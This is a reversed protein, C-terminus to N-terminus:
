EKITDMSHENYKIINKVANEDRDIIAGCNYCYYTQHDHHIADGSLTQKGGYGDKTKRFGCESCIQTSPYMRDVKILKRDNWDCKYNLMVAFQGFMSRHLNKGMKKSMMMHQVDLDEIHIESYENVLMTTFKQMIDTQINNVKQYDRRLKTIVKTYRKTQYNFPNAERKRALLRQYYTIRQYYMELSEPYTEVVGDNYNMHKIKVDVGAVDDTRPVSINHATDFVLSAYIGNNKMTIICLKIDGEFRPSNSMRIGYWVNNNVPQPKDLVLKGNVIRATDTTFTPKYNKRSKFRPHGHGIDASNFFDSFAKGLSISTQQLVRSSLSYQWDEKDLVLQKRVDYESPRLNKDNMIVSADYMDNWIELAHNWCYRRYHFLAKIITLMHSNPYLRVVHSKIM